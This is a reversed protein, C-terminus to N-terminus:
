QVKFGVEDQLPKILRLLSGQELHTEQDIVSSPWRKPRQKKVREEGGNRAIHASGVGKDM